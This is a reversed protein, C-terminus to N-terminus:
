EYDSLMFAHSNTPIYKKYNSSLFFYWNEPYEPKIADGHGDTIVFCAEPYKLIKKATILSQVKKELCKFSTGGGGTIIPNKFDIDHVQTDFIFGFVNFRDKPLSKAANFFRDKLGWCSGSVDLFFMINYKDEKRKTTKLDSSLFLDKSIESYRRNRIAWQSNVDEKTKFANMRSKIVTEWKKKPNIKLKRPVYKLSGPIDGALSNERIKKFDETKEIKKIFDEKEEDSLQNLVDIIIDNSQEDFKDLGDHDDLTHDDIEQAIGNSGMLILKGNIEIANKQLFDYYYEFSKGREVDNRNPFITDMWCLTTDEGNENVHSIPQGNSDVLGDVLCKLNIIKRNFGFKTILMHNIVVDMAYNIIKGHKLSKGRIGHELLVHLTEHCLIFCRTYDDLKQWFIPNFVFYNHQGDDDWGVAATKQEFSFRPHGISWMKYFIGHFEKMTFSLEYYKEKIDQDLLDQVEKDSLGEDTFENRNSKM